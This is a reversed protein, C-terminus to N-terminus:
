NPLFISTRSPFTGIRRAELRDLLPFVMLRDTQHSPPQRDPRAWPIRRRVYAASVWRLGSTARTHRGELGIPTQRGEM